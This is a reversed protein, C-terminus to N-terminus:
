QLSVNFSVCVTRLTTLIKRRAEDLKDAVRHTLMMHTAAVQSVADATGFGGKRSVLWLSAACNM